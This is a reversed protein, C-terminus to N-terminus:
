YCQKIKHSYRLAIGTESPDKDMMVKSWTGHITEVLIRLNTLSQQTHMLILPRPSAEEHIVTPASRSFSGKQFAQVSKLMM